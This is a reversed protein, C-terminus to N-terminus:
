NYARGFQFPQATIAIVQCWVPRDNKRGVTRGFLSVTSPSEVHLFLEPKEIQDRNEKLYSIPADLTHLTIAEPLSDDPPLHAQRTVFPLNNITLVEAKTGNQIANVLETLM